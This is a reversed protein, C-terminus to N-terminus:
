ALQIKEQIERLEEGLRLRSADSPDAALFLIRIESFDPKKTATNHIINESLNQSQLGYQKKADDWFEEYDWGERILSSYNYKHLARIYGELRSFGLAGKWGFLGWDAFGAKALESSKGYIIRIVPPSLPVKQIHIYWIEDKTITLKYKKGQFEIKSVSVTVTGSDKEFLGMIALESTFYGVNTFSREEM